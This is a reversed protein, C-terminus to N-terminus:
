NIDADQGIEFEDSSNTALIDPIFKPAFCLKKQTFWTLSFIQHDSTAAPRGNQMKEHQFKEHYIGAQFLVNQEINKWINRMNFFYNAAM